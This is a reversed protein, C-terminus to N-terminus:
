PIGGTPLAFVVMLHNRLPTLGGAVHGPSITAYGSEFGLSPPGRKSEAYRNREGKRWLASIKWMAQFCPAPVQYIVPCVTNAQGLPAISTVKKPQSLNQM